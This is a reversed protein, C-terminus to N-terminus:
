RKKAVVKKAKRKTTTPESEPKASPLAKQRAPPEKTMGFFRVPPLFISVFRSRASITALVERAAGYLLSPGNITALQERMEPECDESVNFFGALLITFKYPFKSDADNLVVKLRFLWELENDPNQGAEVTVDVDEARLPIENEIAETGSEDTLAFHLEELYYHELQLKSARM